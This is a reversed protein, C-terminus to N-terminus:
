NSWCDSVCGAPCTPHNCAKVPLLSPWCDIAPALMRMCHKAELKCQDYSHSIDNGACTRGSEVDLSVRRLVRRNSWLLKLTRGGPRSSPQVARCVRDSCPFVHSTSTRPQGTTISFYVCGDYEPQHSPLDQMSHRAICGELPPTLALCVLNHM